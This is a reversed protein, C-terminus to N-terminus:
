PTIAPIATLPPQSSGVLDRPHHLVSPADTTVSSSSVGIGHRRKSRAAKNPVVDASRMLALPVRAADFLGSVHRCGVAAVTLMLM